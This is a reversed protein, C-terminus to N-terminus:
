ALHTQFFFLLVFSAHGFIFWGQPSSRFVGDSKLIACNLEFIESLQARRAYKKLLLDSYNVGNLKDGYSEITVSVQEVNYKSEAM